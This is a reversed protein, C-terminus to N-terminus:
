AWFGLDHKIQERNLVINLQSIPEASEKLVGRRIGDCRAKRWEGIAVVRSPEYISIPSAFMSLMSYYDCLVLFMTIRILSFFFM